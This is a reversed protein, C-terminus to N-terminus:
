LMNQILFELTIKKREGFLGQKTMVNIIDIFEATQVTSLKNEKSLLNLAAILTLGKGGARTSPYLVSSRKVSLDQEKRPPGNLQLKEELDYAQALAVFDNIKSDAKDKYRARMGKEWLERAEPSWVEGSILAHVIAFPTKELKGVKYYMNASNTRNTLTMLSYGEPAFWGLKDIQLTLKDVIWTFPHNKVNTVPSMKYMANKVIGARMNGEFTFRAAAYNLAHAQNGNAKATAIAGQLGTDSPYRMEYLARLTDTSVAGKNAARNAAELRLGVPIRTNAAISALTEANASKLSSAPIKAGRALLLTRWLPPIDVQITNEGNKKLLKYVTRFGSGATGSVEKYLTDAYATDGFYLSCLADNQKWLDGKLEKAAMVVELCAGDASGTLALANVGEAALSAAVPKKVNAQQYLRVAEDFYGMANLLRLRAAMLDTQQQADRFKLGSFDSLLVDRWVDRLAPSAPLGKFRSIETLVDRADIDAWRNRYPMRAFRSLGSIERYDHPAPIESYLIVAAPPAVPEQPPKDDASAALPLIASFLLSATFLRSSSFFRRTFLIM